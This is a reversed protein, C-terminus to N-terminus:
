ARRQKSQPRLFPPSSAPQGSSRRRAPPPQPPKQSPPRCLKLLLPQHRRHPQSKRRCPVLHREGNWSTATNPPLQLCTLSLKKAPSPRRVPTPRTSREGPQAPEFAPPPPRYATTEPSLTTPAAAKLEIVSETDPVVPLDAVWQPAAEPATAPQVPPSPAVGSASKEQPAVSNKPNASPNRRETQAARRTRHRRMAEEYPIERIEESGAGNGHGNGNGNAPHKEAWTQFRSLIAEIEETKPVPQM